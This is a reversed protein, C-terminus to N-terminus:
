SQTIVPSLQNQVYLCESNNSRIQFHSKLKEQIFHQLTKKKIEYNLFTPLFAKSSSYYFHADGELGMNTKETDNQGLVKVAIEHDKNM